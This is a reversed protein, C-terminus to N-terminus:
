EEKIQAMDITEDIQGDIVYIFSLVAEFEKRYEYEDTLLTDRNMIPGVSQVVIGADNLDNRGLEELWIKSKIAALEAENDQAGLAAFSWTQILPMYRRGNEAPCTGKKTETSLITYLIYPYVSIPERILNAKMVECGAASKLGETITLNIREPDFM